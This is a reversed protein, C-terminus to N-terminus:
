QCGVGVGLWEGMNALITDREVETEKIRTHLQTVKEEYHSKMAHMNKHTRELDEILRQKISIECTLEALDEHINDSDALVCCCRLM